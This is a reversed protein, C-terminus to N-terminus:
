KSVERNELDEETAEAFLDIYLGDMYKKVPLPINGDPFRREIAAVFRLYTALPTAKM